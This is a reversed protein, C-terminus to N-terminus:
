FRHSVGVVAAVEQADGTVNSGIDQIRVAVFGNSKPGLMRNLQLRVGRQETEAAVFLGLGRTRTWTTTLSLASIPTLQHNLAVSAGVQVNDELGTPLLPSGDGGIIAETRLYFGSLGLSNRAGLLVINASHSTILNVQQTFFSVPAIVFQPLGTAAILDQVARAREIPDPYRTTLAQDLLSAVSIQAPLTMLLEPYTAVDRTSQVSWALRPMRHSFALQWGTGFYRDEAFASLNVRPNPRWTLGAGYFTREAGFGPLNNTEYGARLAIEFQEDFSVSAIAHAIETTVRASGGGSFNSDSRQYSLSLGIPRPLYAVEASQRMAYANRLAVESGTTRTWTNESRAFAHLRPSIQWDIYPSLRATTTSQTNVSSAGEPRPGFPNTFARSLRVDADVFFFREIAELNALLSGTPAFESSQTGQLYTFSTLALNGALRLRRGEGRVVVSPTVEAIVDAEDQGQRNFGSNSTATAQAGLGFETFWREALAPAPAVICAALFFFTAARAISGSTGKLSM